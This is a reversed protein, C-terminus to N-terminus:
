RGRNRRKSAKAIAKRRARLKRADKSEREQPASVWGGRPAARAMSNVALGVMLEAVSAPNALRTPTPDVTYRRTRPTEDEPPATAASTNTVTAGIACNVRVMHAADPTAGVVAVETSM